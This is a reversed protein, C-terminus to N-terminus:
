CCGPCFGLADHVLKDCDLCFHSECKPCAYRGLPSLDPLLTAAIATEPFPFACSFCTPPQATTLHSILTYNAVKSFLHTLLVAQLLTSLGLSLSRRSRRIALRVPFLHRYSRALQPANVVTLGCVKCETPM